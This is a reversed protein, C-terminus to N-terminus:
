NVGIAVRRERKKFWLMGQIFLWFVILSRFTGFYGQVAQEMFLSTSIFGVGFCFAWTSRARMLWRDIWAYMWGLLMMILWLGYSGYYSYIIGATGATYDIGEPLRYHAVTYEEEFLDPKDVDLKHPNIFSPVMLAFNNRFSQFGAPPCGHALERYVMGNFANGDFRYIFDDAVENKMIAPDTLGQLGDMLWLVSTGTDDSEASAAFHHRGSVVRAASILVMLVVGAFGLVLVTRWCIPVGFRTLISLLIIANMVVATRSGLLTFLLVQILLVPLIFRPGSRLILVTFATLFIFSTMYSSLSNVWFGFDQGSIAVWFSPVALILVLRWDPLHRKAWQALQDPDYLPKRTNRLSLCYVGAFLFLAISVILVWADVDEQSVLMRYFNRGPFILQVVEWVGYYVFAVVVFLAGVYALWRGRTRILVLAVAALQLFLGIVLDLSM